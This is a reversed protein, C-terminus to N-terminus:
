AAEAELIKEILIRTPGNLALDLAERPAVWLSADSEHNLKVRPQSGATRATYNVLIYHRPRYFEPHEICDQNMVFEVDGIDLGTEERAERVFADCMSEGYDIKGGPVGYLNSWKRTRVLLVKGDEDRILGGVTAVPFHRSEAFSLKDLYRLLEPFSKFVLEPEAKALNEASTYGYTVALPAVSAAKAAMIDHATDGVAVTEDLSLGLEKLMAPLAKTKDEISGRVAQFRNRLELLELTEELMSQDLTSMLFLKHKCGLCALGDRVGPWLNVMSPYRRRCLESFVAEVEEWSTGPCYQRYFDVAPLSFERKYTEFDVPGHGFTRITENTLRWTLEQDDALTGAWDFVINM